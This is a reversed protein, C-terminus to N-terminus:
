QKQQQFIQFQIRDIKKAILIMPILEIKQQLYFM